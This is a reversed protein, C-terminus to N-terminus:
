LGLCCIPLPRAQENILASVQLVIFDELEKQWNVHKALQVSTFLGVLEVGAPLYQYITDVDIGSPLWTCDASSLGNCM